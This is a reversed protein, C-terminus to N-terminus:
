SLKVGGRTLVLRTRCTYARYLPATTRRPPLPPRRRRPGPMGPLPKCENGNLSLM